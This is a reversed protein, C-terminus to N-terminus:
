LVKATGRVVRTGCVMDPVTKKERTFLIPVYWILLLVAVAILIVALLTYFAFALEHIFQFHMANVQAALEEQSLSLIYFSPIFGPLGPVLFMLYRSVVRLFSPKGGEKTVVYVKMLRKGLTAQWTGRLMAIYYVTMASFFIVNQLLYDKRFVFLLVYNLLTFVIGDIVQAAFRRWFGAYAFGEPMSSIPM